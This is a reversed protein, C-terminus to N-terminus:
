PAGRDQIPPGVPRYKDTGDIREYVRVYSKSSAVQVSDSIAQMAAKWRDHQIDLKRLSLIRETSVRGAKDVQFAHEILARIEDGSGPVWEHICEDVISKAVQLREDFVLFDAVQRVV